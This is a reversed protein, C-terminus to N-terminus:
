TLKMEFYCVDADHYHSPLSNKKPLKKIGLFEFGNKTYHAILKTNNGCTDLRLYQRNQSLAYPKAWAVITAVFNQGRFEPDAAIRHVYMSPVADKAGWIELDNFTIAWICAIKNDLRLYFQRNNLIEKKIAEKDFEPWVNDIFKSRQYDAAIRYL